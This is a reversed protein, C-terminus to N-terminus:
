VGVLRQKWNEPERRSHMIAVVLLEDKRLCYIVSYPFEKVQCHRTTKSLPSWAEPYQIIRKIAQKVEDSFRFGLGHHKENYYAIAERLETRAPALFRVKM